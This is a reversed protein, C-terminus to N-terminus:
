GDNTIKLKYIINYRKNVWVIIRDYLKFYKIKIFRESAMVLKIENSEFKVNNTLHKL